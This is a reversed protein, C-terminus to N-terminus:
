ILRSDRSRVGCDRMKKGKKKKHIQELLLFITPTYSFFSGFKPSCGDPVNAVSSDSSWASILSQSTYECLFGLNKKLFMLPWWNGM